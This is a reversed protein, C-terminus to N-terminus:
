FVINIPMADSPKPSRYRPRAWDLPKACAPHAASSRDHGNLFHDAERNPPGRRLDSRVKTTAPGGLPSKRRRVIWASIRAQDLVLGTDDTAPDMMEGLRHLEGLVMLVMALTELRVGGDGTELKALTKDIVGL